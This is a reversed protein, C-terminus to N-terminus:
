VLGGKRWKKFVNVEVFFRVKRSVRRFFIVELVKLFVMFKRVVKVKDNSRKLM